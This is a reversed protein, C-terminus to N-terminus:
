QRLAADEIRWADLAARIGSALDARWAADRLNEIDRDSTLFGMELLVSPIDAAKLVSFAARRIPHANLAGVSDGMGDVMAQALRRARPRTERRALDLLIGAVQDDQGTLDVGALIDDRDHREALRASAADSASASLLYVAAGHAQGQVLTDAHLSIFLDAQMEHALAVRRELAVFRDDSRTMLVEYGGARVLEEKLERAFTLTLNKESLGDREAGPDIGGHGPDLMVRLPGAGSGEPARAARARVPPMDWRPDRPAGARAAFEESTASRMEARLRAKGTEVDVRMAVTDIVMPAALDVVMRSWGPRFGGFRLDRAGDANLMVTRDVGTWDVERFDLVLRPPAALTYARYPVGQSLALDLRLGGGRTDTVLSGAPDVRALGGLGQQAGGRPVFAACVLAFAVFALIPARSM